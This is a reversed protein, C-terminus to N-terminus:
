ESQGAMKPKPLTEGRMQADSIIDAPEQLLEQVRHLAIGLGIGGEESLDQFGGNQASESLCILMNMGAMLGDMPDKSM